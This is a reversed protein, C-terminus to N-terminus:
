ECQEDNFEKPTIDGLQNTIYEKLEDYGTVNLKKGVEFLQGQMRLEWETKTQATPDSLPHEHKYFNNGFTDVWKEPIARIHKGSPTLPKIESKYEETDEHKQLVYSKFFAETDNIDFVCAIEDGKEVIVGLTRHYFLLVCDM